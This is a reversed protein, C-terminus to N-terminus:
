ERHTSLFHHGVLMTIWLSRCREATRQGFAKSLQSYRHCMAENPFLTEDQITRTIITPPRFTATRASQPYMGWFTQQVSDLARAM